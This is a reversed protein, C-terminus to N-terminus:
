QWLIMRILFGIVGAVIYLLTPIWNKDKLILYHVIVTSKFNNWKRYKKQAAFKSLFSSPTESVLKEFRNIREQENVMDRYVVPTPICDIYELKFQQQFNNDINM